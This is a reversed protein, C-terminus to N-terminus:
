LGLAAFTNCDKIQGSKLGTAFWGSRQESTGHTFSEPTPRRGANRQLTDDGIRKAADFAEQFDNTEIAGLQDRVNRAWIGALCDAQLEIGVSIANSGVEDSQARIANWEALVGLDDQIYHGIEHAVVYAMAFDGKAGLQQQLTIFFDTDLYVMKDAPCYFPGTAASAEGCGSAVSGKFLYLKAPSYTRNGQERYVKTWIEETYGLTVAAFEAADQDAATIEASGASQVSGAGNLLPSVDIGLFYGIVLVAVLGVGGIGGVSARGRGAGSARGDVINDSRRRGRWEM